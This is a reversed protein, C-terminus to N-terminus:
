TCYKKYDEAGLIEEALQRRREEKNEGYSRFYELIKKNKETASRIEAEIQNGQVDISVVLADLVRLAGMGYALEVDRLHMMEGTFQGKKMARWVEEKNTGQMDAVAVCIQDVVMRPVEYSFSMARLEDATSQTTQQIDGLYKWFMERTTEEVVGENLGRFHEHIDERDSFNGTKYGIRYSRRAGGVPAIWHKQHSVAHIGEHLFSQYLSLPSKSRSRNFMASDGIPNYSAEDFPGRNEKFWEDSMIRFRDPQLEPMETIGLEAFERKLLYDFLSIVALEQSTKKQEHGLFESENKRIRHLSEAALAEDRPSMDPGVFNFRERMSNM